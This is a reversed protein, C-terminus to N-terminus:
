YVDYRITKGEYSIKPKRCLYESKIPRKVVIKKNLKLLADLIEQNDADEGILNKFLEMEQRSLAKKKKEPFMPDYYFCDVDQISVENIKVLQNKFDQNLFVTKSNTQFESIVKIAEYNYFQIDSLHKSLEQHHNETDSKLYNVLAHNLMFYVLPNREVGIVRYGNQSMFISDQALGLSLDIILANKNYNGLSKFLLESRGLSKRHYNINDNIFDLSLENLESDLLHLTNQEPNQFLYYSNVGSEQNLLENKVWKKLNKFINNSNLNKKPIENLAFKESCASNLFVKLEQFLSDSFALVNLTIM